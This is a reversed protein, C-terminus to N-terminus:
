WLPGYKAVNHVDFENKTQLGIPELMAGANNIWFVTGAGDLAQNGSFFNNDVFLSSAYSWIASGSPASNNIKSVAKNQLFQSDQITFNTCQYINFAGGFSATNKKSIIELFQVNTAKSAYMAGGRGNVAVNNIWSINRLKVGKSLSIAMGGGDIARNFQFSSHLIDVRTTGAISLAGGALARNGDFTSSQIVVDVASGIFM